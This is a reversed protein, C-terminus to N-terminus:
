NPGIGIQFLRVGAELFAERAYIGRGDVVLPERMRELFKDPSLKKFEDWETMILCCHAGEICARPDNAYEVKGGLVSRATTTSKPDYVVVRAGEAVLENIVVISPAEIVNSTDPKFALGLVAVTNGSLPGLAEKVISVPERRHASNISIAAQILEPKIGLSEDFTAIGASDKSKRQSSSASGRYRGM